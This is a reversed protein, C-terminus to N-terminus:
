FFEANRGQSHSAPLQHVVLCAWPSQASMQNQVEVDVDVLVDLAIVPIIVSSGRQQILCMM